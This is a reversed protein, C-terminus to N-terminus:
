RVPCPLFQCWDTLGHSIRTIENFLFLHLTINAVLLFTSTLHIGTKSASILYYLILSVAAETGVGAVSGAFDLLTCLQM